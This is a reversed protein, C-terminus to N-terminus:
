QIKHTNNSQLITHDTTKRSKAAHHLSDAFVKRCTVLEEQQLITKKKLESTSTFFRDDNSGILLFNVIITVSYM